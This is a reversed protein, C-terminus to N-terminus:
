NYMFLDLHLKLAGLLHLRDQIPQQGVRDPGNAREQSEGPVVPPKHLVIAVNGSGQGAEEALICELPPRLRLHGEPCQLV